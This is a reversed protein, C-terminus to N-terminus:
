KGGGKLEELLMYILWLGSMCAWVLYVLDNEFLAITSVILFLSMIILVIIKIFLNNNM